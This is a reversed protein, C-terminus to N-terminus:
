SAIKLRRTLNELSPPNCGDEECNMAAACAARTLLDRVDSDDFRLLDNADKGEVGALLTAMFTDGAGVTDRFEKLPAAPISVKRDGILAFAGKDGLTVVLIKASCRAALIRAAEEIPTDPILWELDEDSLKLLDTHAM